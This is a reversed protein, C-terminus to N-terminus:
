HTIDAKMTDSVLHILAIWAQKVEHTYSAGLGTKLTHLLANGVPTFHAKKVGYDNHRQALQKLVPVLANLDDLGKVAAGLMAMLKRGQQKMNGKFLPKLKPDIEFLTKYFIDAAQEAIPEVQAFSQKILQIQQATLAM